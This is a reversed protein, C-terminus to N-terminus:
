SGMRPKRGSICVLDLRSDFTINPNADLAARMKQLGSEYVDDALMALLSNSQKRLFPDSWVEGGTMVSGHRAIPRREVQNFGASRLARALEENGPYRELDIERAGEFWEYFYRHPHSRPDIGFIALVGRGRLVDAAEDLFASWDTFHHIANVCYVLDFQGMRFPLRNADAQVVVNPRAQAVMGFSSDLGCVFEAGDLASLWRGTGCGAELVRGTAMERLVPEVEDMRNAEYRSNYTPALKDYLV